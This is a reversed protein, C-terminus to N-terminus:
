GPRFELVKARLFEDLRAETLLMCWTESWFIRESIKSNLLCQLNPPSFM